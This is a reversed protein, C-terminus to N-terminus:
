RLLVKWHSKDNMLFADYDGCRRTPCTDFNDSEVFESEDVLSRHLLAASRDGPRSPYEELASLSL